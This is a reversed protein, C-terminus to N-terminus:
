LGEHNGGQRPSLPFRFGRRAHRVRPATLFADVTRASEDPRTVLFLHGCDLMALEADPILWRMLRANVPPILPDDEGAMILTPQRLFPLWPLSTWGSVAALQFYYGRRSSFRVNRLVQTAMEPSSRLAGGYVEGVIRRAYGEDLFRRPTVMKALVSPHAPVMLAGASTAALVLRGCRSPFQIAFQQAMAGGWSVGLVDIEEYGLQRIFREALRAIASLRYPLAPTPSGGVGPVDFIVVTPETLADIFPGCLEINAGLGNFLLLPRRAPDGPRVAYRIRQGDVEAHDITLPSAAAAPM